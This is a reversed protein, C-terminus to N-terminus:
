IDALAIRVEAETGGEPGPRLMASGGHAQAVARVIALGLGVGGKEAGRSADPRYFPQFVRALEEAAIGPGQDRVTLVAENRESRLGVSAHEGYRIANDVLNRVM